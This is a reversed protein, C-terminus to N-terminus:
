NPGGVSQDVPDASEGASESGARLEVIFDCISQLNRFRAGLNIGSPITIEYRVELHTTLRALTLSDLIGWELLPTDSEVTGQGKLGKDEIFAKIDNFIEIDKM